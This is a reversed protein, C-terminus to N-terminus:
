DVRVGTYGWGLGGHLGVRVGGTYGWGLGRHLGV